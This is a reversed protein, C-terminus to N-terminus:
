AAGVYPVQKEGVWDYPFYYGKEGSWLLQNFSDKGQALRAEWAEM